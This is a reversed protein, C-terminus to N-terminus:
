GRMELLFKWLEFLRRGLGQGNGDKREIMGMEFIQAGEKEGAQTKGDEKKKELRKVAGKDNLESVGV